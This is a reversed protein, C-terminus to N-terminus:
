LPTAVPEVPVNRGVFRPELRKAWRLVTERAPQEVWEYLLAALINLGIYALMAYLLPTSKFPEILEQVPKAINAAQILYLAYSVRGLYVFLPVSLIRALMTHPNTLVMMLVGTLPAVLYNLRWASLVAYGGNMHMRHQVLALGILCGVGALLAIRPRVIIFMV